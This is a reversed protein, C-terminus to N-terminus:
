KGEKVILFNRYQKLASTNTNHTAEDNGDYLSILHDVKENLEDITKVDNVKMVKRLASKYSNATNKTKNESILYDVYNSLPDKNVGMAKQRRNIPLKVEVVRHILTIATELARELLERNGTVQYSEYYARLEGAKLLAVSDGFEQLMKYMQTYLNSIESM